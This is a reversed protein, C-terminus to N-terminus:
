QHVTSPMQRLANSNQHDMAKKTHKEVLSAIDKSHMGKHTVDINNNVTTTNNVNQEGVRPVSPAAYDKALAPTGGPAAKGSEAAGKALGSLIDIVFNISSQSRSLDVLAQKGEDSIADSKESKNGLHNMPNLYHVIETAKYYKDALYGSSANELRTIAPKKAEERQAKEEPTGPKAKDKPGAFYELASTLLGLSGTLADVGDKITVFIGASESIRLLIDAFKEGSSILKQFDAALEQGHGANLHGVAMEISRSVNKWAINSRDLAATEKESYIPANKLDALFKQQNQSARIVGALVNDNYGVSKLAQNRFEIRKERQAFQITRQLFEEPHEAYHKMDKISIAGGTLTGIQALGAPAPGLGLSAKSMQDSISKLTGLTDEGSVGMQLLAYQYKQLGQTGEGLLANFNTLETGQQGTASFFQQFAYLAALIGAKAELSMSATNKLGTTVSQISSVAKDSGKVGISVLLDAVQM